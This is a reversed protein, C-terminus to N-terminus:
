SSIPIVVWVVLLIDLNVICWVVFKGLLPARMCGIHCTFHFFVHQSRLCVVFIISSLLKAIKSHFILFESDGCRLNRGNALKV